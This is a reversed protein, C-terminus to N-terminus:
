EGKLWGAIEVADQFTKPLELMKLGTNQREKLNDIKLVPNERAGWEGWCHSLTMWEKHKAFEEPANAPCILRLQGTVQAHNVDLLRTPLYSQDRKNCEKHKDAENAMCTSLWSIALKQSARSGSSTKIKLSKPSKINGIGRPLDFYRPFSGAPWATMRFFHNFNWVDRECSPNTIVFYLTDEKDLRTAGRVWCIETRFNGFNGPNLKPGYKRELKELLM